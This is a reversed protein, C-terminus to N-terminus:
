LLVECYYQLLTSKTCKGKSLYLEWFVRTQPRSESKYFSIKSTMSSFRLKGMAQVDDKQKQFRPKEKTVKSKNRQINQKATIEREQYLIWLLPLFFFLVSCNCHFLWCCINGSKWYNDLGLIFVTQLLKRVFMNLLWKTPLPFFSM